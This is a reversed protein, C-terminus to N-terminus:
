GGLAKAADFAAIGFGVLVAAGAAVVTGITGISSVLGGVAGKLSGISVWTSRARSM